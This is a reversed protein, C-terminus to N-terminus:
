PMLLKLEDALQPDTSDLAEIRDLADCLRNSNILEIIIDRENTM